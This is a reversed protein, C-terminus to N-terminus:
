VYAAASTPSVQGGGCESGRGRRLSVLDGAGFCASAALPVPLPQRGGGAEAWGVVAGGGGGCDPGTGELETTGRM